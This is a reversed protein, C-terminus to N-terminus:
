EVEKIIINRIQQFIDGRRKQYLVEREKELVQRIIERHKLDASQFIEAATRQDPM